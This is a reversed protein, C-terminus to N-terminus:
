DFPTSLAVAARLRKQEPHEGLWKLLINGGLSAGVAVIPAEPDRAALCRLLFDLDETEGSHYLRPRRNPIMQGLRKPDRACSRFNLAVARWGRRAAGSLIGQVYVSFSSGELGHLGVLIPSKAADGDVWDLILEDQDPTELKERRFAIARRPRTLRGWVTQVHAGRLWWAPRFDPREGLRPAPPTGADFSM